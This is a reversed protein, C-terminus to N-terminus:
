RFIRDLPTLRIFFAALMVRPKKLNGSEIVWM